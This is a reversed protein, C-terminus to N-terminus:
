FKFTGNSRCKIGRRHDSLCRKKTKFVVVFMNARQSLPVCHTWHWCYNDSNNIYNCDILVSMSVAFIFLLVVLFLLGLSRILTAFSLIRSERLDKGTRKFIRLGLSVPSNLFDSSSSWDWSFSAVHVLAAALLNLGLHPNHAGLPSYELSNKTPPPPHRRTRWIRDRNWVLFLWKKM